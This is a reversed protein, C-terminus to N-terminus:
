FNNKSIYNKIVEQTEKPLNDWLKFLHRKLYKNMLYHFDKLCINNWKKFHVYMINLKPSIALLTRSSYEKKIWLLDSLIDKDFDCWDFYIKRTFNIYKNKDKIWESSINVNKYMSNNLCRSIMNSYLQKFNYEKKICDCKWNIFQNYNMRYYKNCINCKILYPKSKYISNFYYKKIDTIQLHLNKDWIKLNSKIIYKIKEM